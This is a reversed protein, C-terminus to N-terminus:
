NESPDDVLNPRSIVVAIIACDQAVFLIVTCLILSLRGPQNNQENVQEARINWIFTMWENMWENDVGLVYHM